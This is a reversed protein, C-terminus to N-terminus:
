ARAFGRLVQDAHNSTKIEKIINVINGKEDILFTVRKAMGFMGKVGYKRIVSGKNDSLLTFPLEHKKKFAQHSKRSDASIGLVVINNAQLKTIGDRLSKAQKTCGPTGDKPYFYIAVKKGSFDSLSVRNGDTDVLTFGPAKQGVVVASKKQKNRKSYAVGPIALLCAIGFIMKKNM